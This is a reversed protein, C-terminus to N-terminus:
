QPKHLPEHMGEVLACSNCDFLLIYLNYYIVVCYKRLLARRPCLSGLRLAQELQSHTWDLLTFVWCTINEEGRGPLLKSIRQGDRKQLRTGLVGGVYLLGEHGHCSLDLLSHARPGCGTSVLGVDFDLASRDPLRSSAATLPGGGRWGDGGDDGTFSGKLRRHEKLVKKENRWRTVQVGNGM